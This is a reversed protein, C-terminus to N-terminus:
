KECFRSKIRRTFFNAYSQKDGEALKVLTNKELDYIYYYAKSSRRYISELATALLVKSEDASIEYEDFRLPAKEGEAVLRSGNVLTDVAEGTQIDYKLVFDASNQPNSVQSTYYQGDSM